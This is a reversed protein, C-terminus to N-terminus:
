FLLKLGLQILRPNQASTITGYGAGGVFNGPLNFNAHNLANFAEARFQVAATEGLPFNKFVSLNVSALGPGDLINRGANGFSGFPPAAFATTDFWREPSPNDLRAPRLANPRDNAGFGLASRGTNSNDLEGPLAVTFPRGTQFTLIGNTQWGGLLWHNRPGPLLYTFSGVFRQRADFDSRAREARVNWSDQPFNADGTTAFFGSADDIAKSWTYSALVSLNSSMRQHFSAQLAHYNSNSASELQNIDDYRPNPRPNFPLPSPGPQNIDRARYLRTGKTGIYGLEVMRNRGVERQANLTWQQVYPSRFKSDITFASVPIPFPYAAPWPDSLTLFAQPLSYFLKFNYYPQNFYLGESPALSSQDYYFGYGARIVTAADPSWALGLRPAFNNRDPLYGGRPIGGTGVQSVTGTAPNYLSARDRPDVPPTNYEWRLGANLTLRANLRYNEQAFLGYSRSRLHQPNDLSAVGTAAPLGQLLDSLGNGTFGIFNLLGRAQIDRFANQQLVRVEGGFKLLSRGHSWTAHDLLQYTNTVGSQPNNYEDGLPSYGLVSTYSLGNDRANTWPSPLGVQQNLNVAQNQPTVQLGIRNFGLRLENLLNARFTHTESIMANHARRPVEAGWGPVQPFNAGTFPEFMSREGFSYRASVDSRAGAKQDFRVDFHDSRDRGVPASAYNAFQSSRNPLPYLAAINGGAPHIRYSPIKNGPFPMQTFPDLIYPVNSQSFDGQRELATPVAAQRPFGERVRRGEYDGFLFTRDRKLPGGASFGFQHRQYRPDPEGAPAFYNRADMAANRVFEYATGHPSNTGSKVVVNVQGGANRGFSADYVGTGVEFERIGDVPSTIGVGNLKPDGNYVGDLLFLNSDERMGNVNVAFDGRVSGASGQAPPAVGPLLLSLEFYNRGDLPLDVIQQTNIRGGVRASDTSLLPTFDAVDIQQRQGEPALSVQLEVEQNVGLVVMRVQTEFPAKAVEVRYRGAGLLPVLFQGSNDTAAQRRAGNEERVLTLQVGPIPAGHSDTVRGGIFGRVTQARIGTSLLLLLVPLAQKM